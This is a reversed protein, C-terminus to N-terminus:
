FLVEKHYNELEVNTALTKIYGRPVSRFEDGLLIFFDDVVLLLKLACNAHRVKQTRWAL